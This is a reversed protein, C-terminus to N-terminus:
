SAPRHSHRQIFKEVDAITDWEKSLDFQLLDVAAGVERQIWETLQLMAASDLMGSRLLVTDENLEAGPTVALERIFTILRVRLATEPTRNV